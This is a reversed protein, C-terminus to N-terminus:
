EYGRLEYAAMKDIESKKRKAIKKLKGNITMFVSYKDYKGSLLSSVGFASFNGVETGPMITNRGGLAVGKGLIINGTKLSTNKKSVLPGCLASNLMDDSATYFINNVGIGCLDGISIKGGVGSLSSHSCIHVKNGIDLNGKLITFDDIRTFDGISGNVDYIKCLKSVKVGEGVIKFGLDLLDKKKYFEAMQRSFIQIQSAIM